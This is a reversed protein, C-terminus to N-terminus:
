VIKSPLNIDYEYEGDNGSTMNAFTHKNPMFTNNQGLGPYQMMHSGQMLKKSGQRNISKQYDNTGVVDSIVSENKKNKIFNMVNM